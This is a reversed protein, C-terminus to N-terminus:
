YKLPPVSFVVFLRHLYDTIQGLNSRLTEYIFNWLTVAVADQEGEEGVAV